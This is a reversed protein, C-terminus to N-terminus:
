EKMFVRKKVNLNKITDYTAWSVAASPAQGMIRPLMGKTFGKFGEETIITKMTSAIDKYKIKNPDKLLNCSNKLKRMKEVSQDDMGIKKLIKGFSFQNALLHLHKTRTKYVLTNHRNLNKGISFTCQDFNCTRFHCTQTQLRTKINDLPITM